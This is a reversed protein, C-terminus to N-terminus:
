VFVKDASQYAAQELNLAAEEVPVLNMSAVSSEIDINFLHHTFDTYIFYPKNVQKRDITFFVQTQVIIDCEVEEVLQTAIKSLCNFAFASKKYSTKFSKPDKLFALFLGLGIIYPHRFIEKREIYELLDIRIYECGNAVFQELLKNNVHSFEGITLLLIRM